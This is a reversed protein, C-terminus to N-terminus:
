IMVSRQDNYCNTNTCHYNTSLQLINIGHFPISNMGNIKQNMGNGNM